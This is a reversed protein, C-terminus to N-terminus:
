SLAVIWSSQNCKGLAKSLFQLFFKRIPSELRRKVNNHKWPIIDAMFGDLLAGEVATWFSQTTRNFVPQSKNRLNPATSFALVRIGMKINLNVVTIMKQAYLNRCFPWLEHCCDVVIRGGYQMIRRCHFVSWRYYLGNHLWRSTDFPKKKSAM